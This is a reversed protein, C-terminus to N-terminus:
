LAPSAVGAVWRRELVPEGGAAGVEERARDEECALPGLLDRAEVGVPDPPSGSSVVVSRFRVVAGGAGNRGSSTCPLGTTATTATCAPSGSSPRRVTCGNFSM